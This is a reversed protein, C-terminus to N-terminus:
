DGNIMEQEEDKSKTILDQNLDSNKNKLHDKPELFNVLIAAILALIAFLLFIIVFVKLAKSRTQTYILPSGCQINFYKVSNKELLKKFDKIPIYLKGDIPVPHNNMLCRVKLNNETNGLVNNDKNKIDDQEESFIEFILQSAFAVTDICKEADMKEMIAKYEKENNVVATKVYKKYLDIICDVNDKKILSKLIMTLTLDHASYLNVLPPKHHKKPNSLYNEYDEIQKRWKNFMLTNAVKNVSSNNGHVNERITHVMDMHLFEEWNFLFDSKNFTQSLFTDSLNFLNPVDWKDNLFLNKPDYNNREMVKYTEKFLGELAIQGDDYSQNFADSINPCVSAGFFLFNTESGVVNLPFIKIGEPLASIGTDTGAVSSNPPTWLSSNDKTNITIYKDQDSMMGTLQSYVSAVTRRPASVDISFNENNLFNDILDPYKERLLVGLDYHNRMGTTSLDEYDERSLDVDFTPLPHLPNRAGHRFIEIIMHVKDTTNVLSFSLAIFLIFLHTKM